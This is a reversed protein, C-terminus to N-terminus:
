SNHLHRFQAPTMGEYRKFVASFYSADSFGTYQILDKIMKDEKILMEKAKQIRLRVLYEYPSIKLLQKFIRCLYQSTVNLNNAIELLSIDKAFNQEMYEITLEIQKSIHKSEKSTYDSLVLSLELLFGYLLSSSRYGSYISNSKVSLLINSLLQDIYKSENIYYIGWQKLNLTDLLSPALDGHFGIWHTEWPSEVAFYEHPVGARIFFGTNKEVIIEKGDINLKGSGEVSFLWQHFRLGDPRIVHRQAEDSGVRCVYLPLNEYTGSLPFFSQSM